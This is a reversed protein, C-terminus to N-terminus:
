SLTRRPIVLDICLGEREWARSMTGELQGTVARMLQSGFGEQSTAGDPAPGGSERWVLHLDNDDMTWAVHVRGAPVSLAGYKASNTTWEHLLLAFATISRGRVPTQPGDVLIRGGPHDPDDFPCSISKLLVVLTTAMDAREGLRVDRLTLDHVRALAILRAQLAAAM